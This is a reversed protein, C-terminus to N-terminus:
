HQLPAILLHLVVGFMFWFRGVTSNITPNVNVGQMLYLDLNLVILYNSNKKQYDSRYTTATEGAQDVEVYLHYDDSKFSVLQSLRLRSWRYLM